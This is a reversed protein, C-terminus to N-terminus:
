LQPGVGAHLLGVQPDLTAGAFNAEFDGGPGGLDLFRGLLPAFPGSPGRALLASASASIPPGPPHARLTLRDDSAVVWGNSAFKAPPVSTTTLPPTSFGNARKRSGPMSSAKKM